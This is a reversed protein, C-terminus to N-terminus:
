GTRTDSEPLLLGRQIRQRFRDNLERLVTEVFGDRLVAATNRRIWPLGLGHVRRADENATNAHYVNGDIELIAYTGPAQGQLRRRDVKGSLPGLHVYVVLFDVRYLRSQATVPLWVQPFIVVNRTSQRLVLADRKMHGAYRERYDELIPLRIGIDLPAIRELTFGAAIFQLIVLLELPSDHPV